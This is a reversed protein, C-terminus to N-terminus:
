ITSCQYHERHMSCDLRHESARPVANILQSERARHLLKFIPHSSVLMLRRRDFVPGSVTERVFM